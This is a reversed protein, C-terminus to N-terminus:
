YGPYEPIRVIDASALEKYSTTRLHGRLLTNQFQPKVLDWSVVLTRLMQHKM